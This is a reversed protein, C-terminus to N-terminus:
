VDDIGKTGTAPVLGPVGVIRGDGDLPSVVKKPWTWWGVHTSHVAKAASRRRCRLSLALNGISSQSIQVVKSRTTIQEAPHSRKFGFHPSAVYMHSGRVSIM